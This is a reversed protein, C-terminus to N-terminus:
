YVMWSEPDTDDTFDTTLFPDPIRDEDRGVGRTLGVESDPGGRVDPGVKETWGDTGGDDAM